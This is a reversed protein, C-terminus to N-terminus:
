HATFKTVVLQVHLHVKHKGSHLATTPLDYTCSFYAAHDKTRTWQKQVVEPAYLTSSEQRFLWM